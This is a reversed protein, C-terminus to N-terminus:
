SGYFKYSTNQLRNLNELMVDEIYPNFSVVVIHLLFGTEELKRRASGLFERLIEDQEVEFPAGMFHHSMGLFSGPKVKVTLRVPNLTEILEERNRTFELGFMLIADTILNKSSLNVFQRFGSEKFDLKFNDKNTEVWHPHPRELLWLMKTPYFEEGRETGWM